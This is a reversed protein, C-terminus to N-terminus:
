SGTARALYEQRVSLGAGSRAAPESSTTRAESGAISLNAETTLLSRLRSQAGTRKQNAVRGFVMRHGGDVSTCGLTRRIFLVPSPISASRQSEPQRLRGARM